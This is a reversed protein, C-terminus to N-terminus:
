PPAAKLWALTHELKSRRAMRRQRLFKLLAEWLEELSVQRGEILSVLVRAYKAIQPDNAKPLAQALLPPCQPASRDESKPRNTGSAKQQQASNESGDLGQGSPGQQDPARVSASNFKRSRNANQRRKEDPHKRYFEKSRRMSERRYHAERCGFPCLLDERAANRPDTIFYIRCHRCRKLCRRLEVKSQM